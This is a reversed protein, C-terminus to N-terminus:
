PPGAGVEVPTLKGVSAPRIQGEVASNTADGEALPERRLESRKAAAYLSNLSGFATVKVPERQIPGLAEM